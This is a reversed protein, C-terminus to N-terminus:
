DFKYCIVCFLHNGFCRTLATHLKCSFLHNDGTHNSFTIIPYSLTEDEVWQKKTNINFTDNCLQVLSNPKIILLM